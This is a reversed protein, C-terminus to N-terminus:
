ASSVWSSRERRGDEELVWTAICMKSHKASMEAQLATCLQLSLRLLVSSRKMGPFSLERMSRDTVTSSTVTNDEDVALFRPTIRSSPSDQVGLMLASKHEVVDAPDPRKECFICCLEEDLCQEDGAQVVAVGEQCSERGRCGFRQLTDLLRHDELSDVSSCGDVELCQDSWM